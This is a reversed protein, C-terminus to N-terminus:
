KCAPCNTEECNGLTEAAAIGGAYKIGCAVACSMGADAAVCADTCALLGACEPSEDCAMLDACCMTDTCALCASADPDLECVTAVDPPVESDYPSPADYPPPPVDAPGGDKMGMVDRGLDGRADNLNADHAADFQADHGEEVPKEEASDSPGEAFIDPGHDLSRSDASAERHTTVHHSTDPQSGDPGPLDVEINNTTGCGLVLFLLLPSQRM